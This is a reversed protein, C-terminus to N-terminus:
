PIMSRSGALVARGLEVHTPGAPSLRSEFLTVASVRAIGFSTDGLGEFLRAAALGRAAKVRGLTLHPHFGRDEQVLPLEHLREGLEREVAQVQAAGATVGAWVVRPPRQPPFAGLGAITVDFPAISLPAEFASLVLRGLGSDVEGIFRVTLHMHEPRVWSVRAHPDVRAVRRKLEEIARQAARVVEAGVDIAAFLRM